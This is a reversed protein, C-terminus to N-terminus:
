ATFVFSLGNRATDLRLCHMRVIRASSETWQKRFSSYSGISYSQIYMSGQCEAPFMGSPTPSLEESPHPAPVSYSGRVYNRFCRPRYKKSSPPHTLIEPLRSHTM